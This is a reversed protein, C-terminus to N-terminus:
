AAAIDPISDAAIKVFLGDRVGIFKDGAQYAESVMSDPTINENAVAFGGAM